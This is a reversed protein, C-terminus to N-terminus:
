LFPRRPPSIDEKEGKPFFWWQARQDGPNYEQEPLVLRVRVEIRDGAKFPPKQDMFLNTVIITTGQTLSSVGPDRKEFEIVRLVKLSIKQVERIYTSEERSKKLMWEETKLTPIGVSLIEEVCAEIKAIAFTHYYLPTVSLAVTPLCTALIILLFITKM